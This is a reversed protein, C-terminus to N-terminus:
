SQVEIETVRFQVQSVTINADNNSLTNVEIHYNVQSTSLPEDYVVDRENARGGASLQAWTGARVQSDDTRRVAIPSTGRMLRVATNADGITGSIEIKIISNEAVPTISVTMIRVARRAQIFVPEARYGVRLLKTNVFSGGSPGWTGDGRLVRSVNAVGSGLREPSFRGSTIKSANLGPIRAVAFAGGTIKSAPLNPIQSAAFTGSTIKSAGLNPIDGAALAEKTALAGIGLNTRADAASTAGTGGKLIGIVPIQSVAITGSAIKSAPINPIQGVNFVGGSVDSATIKSRVYTALELSTAYRMPDEATGEDSFVWRDTDAIAATETVDEHLDFSGGGDDPAGASATSYATVQLLDTSVAPGSQLAFFLERDSNRAIRIQLLQAHIAWQDVRLGLTAVGSTSWSDGNALTDYTPIRGFRVFLWGGAIGIHAGADTVFPEGLSLAIIDDDGISDPFTLNTTLWTTSNELSFQATSQAIQTFGGSNVNAVVSAPLRGAADLVPVNGATTGTDAVAATGLGLNARAGAATAAGTGGRNVAVEGSSLDGAVVKGRVYAAMELSTAYRMPDDATGEDSFVWRDADAITGRTMVHTHLDFRDGRVTAASEAASVASAASEAASAASATASAESANAATESRDAETDSRDAEEVAQLAIQQAQDRLITTEDRLGEIEAVLSPPFNMLQWRPGVGGGLDGGLNLRAEVVLGPFFDGAVAPRGDHRVLPLRELGDVSLTTPGTNAGGEPVVFVVADGSEQATRTDKTAMSYDNPDNPDSVTAEGGYVVAGSTLDRPNSPLPDFGDELQDFLINAEASRVRTGAVFRNSFTFYPNAM